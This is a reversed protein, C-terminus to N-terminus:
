TQNRLSVGSDVTKGLLYTIFSACAGLMFVADHQDVDPKPLDLLAHRIGEANCTYGYISSFGSKLSPQIKTSKELATLAPGLTNSAKPDLLRAVAEVAHISERVSGAFDGANVREAANRLHIRAGNLEHEALDAFAHEIAASEVESAIPMITDGGVLRYAAGSEQLAWAVTEKLGRPCRHHRLVLQVFNFIDIYSGHEFVTRMSTKQAAFNNKFDDRMLHDSRIHKYLLISKWPEGVWPKVMGMADSEMSRELSRLFGDWLLARLEQSVEFLQLPQPLPEVGEAQAFTLKRRDIGGDEVM